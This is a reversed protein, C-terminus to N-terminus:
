AKPLAMAFTRRETTHQRRDVDRPYQSADLFVDGRLRRHFVACSSGRPMNVKLGEDEPLLVHHNTQEQEQFAFAADPNLKLATSGSEQVQGM